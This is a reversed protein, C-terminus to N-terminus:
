KLLFLLFDELSFDDRLGTGELSSEERFQFGRFVSM